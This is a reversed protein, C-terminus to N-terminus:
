RLRVKTMSSSKHRLLEQTEIEKLQDCVYHTHPLKRDRQTRHMDVKRSDLDYFPLCFILM